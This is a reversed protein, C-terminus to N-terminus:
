NLKTGKEKGVGKVTFLKRDVKGDEHVIWPFLKLWHEQCHRSGGSTSSSSSTDLADDDTPPPGATDTDAEGSKNM